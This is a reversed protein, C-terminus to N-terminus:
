FSTTNTDSHIKDMAKFQNKAMRNKRELWPQKQDQVCGTKKLKKSM